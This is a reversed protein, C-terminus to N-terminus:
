DCNSNVYQEAIAQRLVGTAMGFKWRLNEDQKWDVNVKDLRVFQTPDGTQYNIEDVGGNDVDDLNWPDLGEYHCTIYVLDHATAISFCKLTFRDLWDMKFKYETWIRHSLKRSSGDSLGYSMQDETQQPSHLYFPLRISNLFNIGPQMIQGLFNYYFGFADNINSYQLVSTPYEECEKTIKYFQTTSCWRVPSVQGVNSFPACGAINAFPRPTIPPLTNVLGVEYICISFCQGPKLANFETVLNTSQFVFVTSATNLDFHCATAIWQFDNTPGVLTDDDCDICIRAALTGLMKQGAVFGAYPFYFNTIAQSAVIGVAKNLIYVGTGGTHGSSQSQIFLQNPSGNYYLPMGIQLQGESITTVTLTNGLISGIGGFIQITAQQAFQYSPPPGTNLLFEFSLDKTLMMPLNVIPKECNAYTGVESFQLFSHPINELAVTM